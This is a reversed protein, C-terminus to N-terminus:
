RGNELREIRKIIDSLLGANHLALRGTDVSKIGNEDEKVASPVVKEIDQAMPGIHEENPDISPDIAQAEPKYTYHYNQVAEAYKHLEDENEPPTGLGAAKALVQLERENYPPGNEKIAEVLLAPETTESITKYHEDSLTYHRLYAAALDHTRKKIM